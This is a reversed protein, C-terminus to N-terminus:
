YKKPNIYTPSINLTKLRVTMFTEKVTQLLLLLETVKPITKNSKNSDKFISKTDHIKSSIRQFLNHKM